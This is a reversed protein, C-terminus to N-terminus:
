GRYLDELFIVLSFISDQRFLIYIVSSTILASIPISYKFLAHKTKHRFIEMGLWAGIGGLAYSFILLTKESIRYNRKIARRKDVYYLIMTFINLCLIIVLLLRNFQTLENIM